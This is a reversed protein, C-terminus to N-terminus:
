RQRREGAVARAARRATDLAEPSPPAPWPTPEAHPKLEAVELAITVRVAARRGPVTFVYGLAPETSQATGVIQAALEQGIQGALTVAVSAADAQSAIIAEHTSTVRRPM